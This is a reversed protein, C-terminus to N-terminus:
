RRAEDNRAAKQGDIWWSDFNLGERIPIGPEGFRDWYAIHFNQSHWNPVLYWNWLLLRDLARAATRLTGRDEAAIVKEIMADIAPNCIGPVNASGQSKAGACSWYDRLESGPIDSGGYIMMTMDFDFDDTLHQFQAPDVTRVQVDFGLKRLNQVYPLAVRELSPDDLLITFAAPQGNADLLKRDKVQWGADRLLKLAERLQETNNGSGDTVPLSFPTSLLSAPLSDQFPQLLKLEDPSPLGTAALDTNSFYSLTRAYASYFLNKNTWEFDFALTVAQRVRPDAFVARRTNMAYGQIGTPLKHTYERKIVLGNKVAPFDYAAAWNKAINESRIDVKGAKFAEMAVTADRFYEYRVQDFNNTGRGTPMNAAWWNPDRTYTVSRGLEFNTIRYPGSGIPADTLPTTFDRGEFFHKPLVPLGGMLLPLERNQTTKFNFRVRRPGEVVVDKVDAFQVRMSPRGKELLTRFTWAVDEATVPTGDSFKAEPRLNFATWTKDAPVEISEALHGYGTAVEDASSTLLTEWVHGVSSGSGSGGPLVLWAAASHSEATGRLIFPNFSDFTGIDALNVAGGKPANVNVYPFSKFDPPLTPEGLVTFGHKPQVTSDTQAWAGHSLIVLSFLFTTLRM